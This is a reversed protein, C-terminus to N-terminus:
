NMKKENTDPLIFVGVADVLDATFDVLKDAYVSQQQLEKNTKLTSEKISAARETILEALNRQKDSNSKIQQVMNVLQNTKSMTEQMQTEAEQALKTGNVVETIVNNMIRVADNTELQINNVLSSIESTAERANEALRQVEDAIVVFGKGAEGTSAAHISANLALIHTREAISNILNVVSSIEQSREGLRKIRKETERIVERINNIGEVTNTVINKAKSTSEIADDASLSSKNALEVVEKMVKSATVLEANAREVEDRETTAFSMIIDSQNKVNHSFSSIENSISRVGSLVRSIEDALINLSDAIPATADETIDVRATLDKQSLKNVGHLLSVVADSLSQNEQKSNLEYEVRQDLIKDIFVGLIGLQDSLELNTRSSMDGNLVKELVTLLVKLSNYLHFIVFSNFILVLLSVGLLVLIINTSNEKVPLENFLYIIIFINIVLILTISTLQYVLRFIDTKKINAKINM